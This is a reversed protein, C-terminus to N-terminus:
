GLWQERIEKGISYTIGVFGLIGISSIGGVYILMLPNKAASPIKIFMDIIYGVGYSIGLIGLISVLGIFFTKM